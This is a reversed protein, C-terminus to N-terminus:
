VIFPEMNFLVITPPASFISSSTSISQSRSSSGNNFKKIEKRVKVDGEKGKEVKEGKKGKPFILFKKLVQHLTIAAFETIRGNKNFMQM